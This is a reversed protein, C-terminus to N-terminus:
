NRQVENKKGKAIARELARYCRDCLDWKKKPAEYHGGKYLSNRTENTLPVKCRDCSYTSKM